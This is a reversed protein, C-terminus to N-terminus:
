TEHTQQANPAPQFPRYGLRRALALCEGAPRVGASCTPDSLSAAAVAVGLRLCEAMPWGEHVGFLVGAVLADGAGAAGSIEAPPVSLSPQWLGRGRPDCAYVAEPFHIVVWSRVGAQVLQRAAQEVAMPEISDGRRLPIRTTKEAEFDNAFLIDVSPLVPRIVARFRESDESVCDISTSLGAERARELVEAACPRGDVMRDLRDLLLLYGFHFHRASTLSFDFHEAGLHANAGRQHFFTRRGTSEVTMVDTCSTAAASTTRLQRTDIRHAQCDALIARGDADDGVLGIAELPFEAGLRALDKLVNYPAGGNSSSRRLISALADQAPWADIIKVHDIIWNGGALIGRRPAHRAHSSTM